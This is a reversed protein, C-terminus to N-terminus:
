KGKKHFYSLVSQLHEMWNKIESVDLFLKLIYNQHESIDTCKQDYYTVSFRMLNTYM